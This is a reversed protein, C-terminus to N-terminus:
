ALQWGNDVQVGAVEVIDASIEFYETIQDNPAKQTNPLVEEYYIPYGKQWTITKWEEGKPSYFIIKGPKWSEEASSAAWQAIDPKGDAQRLIKILGARPQMTPAGREDRGTSLSYTISYVHTYPVGNIELLPQRAM